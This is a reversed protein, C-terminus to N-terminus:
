ANMANKNTSQIMDCVIFDDAGVNELNSIYAAGATIQTKIEAYLRGLLNKTKTRNIVFGIKNTDVVEAQLETGTPTKAFVIGTDKKKGNEIQYIFIKYDNMSAPPIIVGGTKVTFTRQQVDNGQLVKEVETAM